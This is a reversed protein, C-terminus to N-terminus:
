SHKSHLRLEIEWDHILTNCDDFGLGHGFTPTEFVVKYYHLKNDKWLGRTNHNTV